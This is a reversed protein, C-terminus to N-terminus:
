QALRTDAIYVSCPAAADGSEVRTRTALGPFRAAVRALDAAASTDTGVLIM